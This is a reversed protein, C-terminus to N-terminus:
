KKLYFDAYLDDAEDWVEDSSEALTNFGALDDKELSQEIIKIEIPKLIYQGDRVELLFKSTKLHKRESKPFTIQGQSSMTLIHSSM